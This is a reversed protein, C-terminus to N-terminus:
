ILRHSRDALALLHRCHILLCHRTKGPYAHHRTETSGDAVSIGPHENPFSPPHVHPLQNDAKEEQKQNKTPTQVHPSPNHLQM